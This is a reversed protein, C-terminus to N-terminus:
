PTNKYDEHDESDKRLIGNTTLSNANASKLKSNSFSKSIDLKESKDLKRWQVKTKTHYLNKYNKNSKKESERSDKSEERSDYKKKAREKQSFSLHSKIESTEFYESAGLGNDNIVPSISDLNKIIKIKSIENNFKSESSLHRLGGENFRKTYKKEEENPRLSSREM